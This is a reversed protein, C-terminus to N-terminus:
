NYTEKHGQIDVETHANGNELVWEKYIFKFTHQLFFNNHLLLSENWINDYWIPVESFHFNTYEVSQCRIYVQLAKSLEFSYIFM